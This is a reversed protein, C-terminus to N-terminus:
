GIKERQEPMVLEQLKKRNFENQNDLCRKIARVEEDNRIEKKLKKFTALTKHINEKMEEISSSITNTIRNIENAFSWKDNKDHIQADLIERTLPNLTLRLALKLRM